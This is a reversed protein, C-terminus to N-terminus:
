AYTYATNPSILGVWSNYTPTVINSSCDTRLDLIEQTNMISLMCIYDAKVIKTVKMSTLKQSLALALFFIFALESLM